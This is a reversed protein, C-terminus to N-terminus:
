DAVASPTPAPVLLRREVVDWAINAFFAEIYRPREAPAYDLIFAHEWVDMVLVPAFGAVNGVEHLTIWHNSLRGSAPDQFCIAWGVGRMKGVSVFDTKWTAYSGLSLEAAQVLRSRRAPDGSGARTMNEFYYEHLVMGNYEFGLRRTLESYAPMEEQDVQGDKLFEAIRASLRNTEKVYGEYLKFHMELTKDSIGTLGSLNFQKPTYSVNLSM